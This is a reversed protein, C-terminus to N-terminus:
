TKSKEEEIIELIKTATYSDTVLADVLGSRVAGLIAHSKYVGGAVAIVYKIKKALDLDITMLRDTLPGDIINGKIDVMHNFIDGVVGNKQLWDVDEQPFRGELHLNSTIESYWSGIGVLAITISSFLDVTKSIAPDQLLVKKSDATQVLIPVVFTSVEANLKEGLSNLIRIDEVRNLLGLGGAVQVIHSVKVGVKEPLAKIVEKVTSGWAIGLVDNDHISELLFKAAESGLQRKNLELDNDVGEIILVAKLGLERELREELSFMDKSSPNLIQIRVIGAKQAENLLRAVKFRSIHLKEAIEIKSLQQYYYMKCVKFMLLQDYM